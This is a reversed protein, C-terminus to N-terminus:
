VSKDAERNRLEAPVFRHSLYIFPTDVAAVFIKLLWTFFIPGAIPFVGYFAIGYFTVTDVAQSIWTSGNNRLWLHRGGTAKRIREFLWVDLHQALLYAVLSGLVIRPLFGFLNEMYPQAFDGSGPFAPDAPLPAYRLIIQTTALFLLGGMFGIRVARRAERSGWHEALLDTSLFISAYLVNGGTADLGFLRMQKIVVLNMLVAATAVYSVLWIKGLRFCLLVLALTLMTQALYLLTNSM